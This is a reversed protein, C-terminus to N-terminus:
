CRVTVLQHCKAHVALGCAVCEVVKGSAGEITCFCRAGDLAAAKIPSYLDVGNTPTIAATNVPAPNVARYIMPVCAAVTREYMPVPMSRDLPPTSVMPAYRIPVQPVRYDSPVMVQSQPTYNPRGRMQM